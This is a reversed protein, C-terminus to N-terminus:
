EYYIISYYIVWLPYDKEFYPSQLVASPVIVLNAADNYSVSVPQSIM